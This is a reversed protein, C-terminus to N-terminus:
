GDGGKAAGSSKRSFGTAGNFYEAVGDVIQRVLKSQFAHGSAFASFRPGIGSHRRDFQQHGAIPIDVQAARLNRRKRLKEEPFKSGPKM